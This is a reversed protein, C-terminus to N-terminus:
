KEELHNINVFCIVDNDDFRFICSKGRKGDPTIAWVEIMNDGIIGSGVANWGMTTMCYSTIFDRKAEMDSNVEVHIRPRNVYVYINCVLCFTAIGAVVIWLWSCGITFGYAVDLLLVAISIIINAM